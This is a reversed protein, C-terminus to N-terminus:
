RVRGGSGDMEGKGISFFSEGLCGIGEGASVLSAMAVGGGNMPRGRPWFYVLCSGGGQNQNKEGALRL